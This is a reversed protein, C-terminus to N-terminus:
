KKLVIHINEKSSQNTVQPTPILVSDIVHTTTSAKQLSFRNQYGCAVSIFHLERIYILTFTDITEPAMSNSDSQFIVSVSDALQSLPFGFKSNNKLNSFYNSSSGFRLNANELLTDVHLNATDNYYFGGRMALAQPELCLDNQTCSTTCFFTVALLATQFKILYNSSRNMAIAGDV